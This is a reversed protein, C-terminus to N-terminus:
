GWGGARYWGSILLMAGLPMLSFGTALPREAAARRFHGLSLRQRMARHGGVRRAAVFLWAVFVAGLFASRNRESAQPAVSSREPRDPDYYVTVTDGVELDERYTGM